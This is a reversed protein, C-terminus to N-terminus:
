KSALEVLQLSLIWSPILRTTLAFRSTEPDIGPAPDISM